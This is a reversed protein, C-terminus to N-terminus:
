LFLQTSGFNLSWIPTCSLHHPHSPPHNTKYGEAASPICCWGGVGGGWEKNFRVYEKTFRVYEKTFRGYEKTLRVYEKTFRVCEKTFRVNRLLYEKTFRDYM